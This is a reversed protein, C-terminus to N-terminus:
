RRHKRVTTHHHVVIHHTVTHHVVVHHVVPTHHTHSYDYESPQCAALGLAAGM